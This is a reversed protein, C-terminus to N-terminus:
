GDAKKEPWNENLFLGLKALVELGDNYDIRATINNYRLRQVLQICGDDVIEFDEDELKEMAKEFCDTQEQLSSGALCEIHHKQKQKKESM